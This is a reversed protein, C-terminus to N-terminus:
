GQVILPRMMDHEEHELIHCHWVYEAGEIKEIAMRPSNPITVGAPALGTTKPIDVLLTLCEGPNSRVTEKWGLEVPEPGYAKGTFQPTGGKTIMCAQRSLVRVNFYHFHIPHTDATLNFLKWVEVTGAQVVETAPDTLAMATAITGLNQALRGYEDVTEWLAVERPKDVTQLPPRSAPLTWTGGAPLGSATGSDVKFQLLTRTNPGFGPTPPVPLAKNGPYFDAFPTGGPYPVPADNHLILRSGAPVASFDILVDAREGPALVLGPDNMKGAYVVGQPALTGDLFGGETGIVRLAPGVSKEDPEADNPYGGPQAFCLRLNLVRTNCANLVRFRYLGRKVELFPYATGNVLMTDGWFEPVLSPTPLTKGPGLAFFQTDYTSPYWLSGDSNFVKDQIALPIQREATIGLQGMLNDEADDGLIYGSALGAYANLRTIGVAHDHYWLMRASLMNPYWYDDTLKGNKDPLWNVCSPGKVQKKGNPSFWSFPGGDSTWPVLGGHLHPAARNVAPDGVGLYPSVLSMDVPLPHVPPLENSWRVRVPRGSRAIIAGGLHRFDRSKDAANGYGWLTTAPLHPHLTDTYQRMAIEYYDAGYRDVGVSRAIPIDVGFQRLPQVFKGLAPSMAFAAHASRGRLFMAAVGAVASAQIFERRTPRM